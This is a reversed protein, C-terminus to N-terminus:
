RAPDYSKKDHADKRSIMDVHGDCFAANGRRDANLPPYYTPGGVVNDPNVRKRDHRIALLNIHDTKTLDGRGDDLTREDEEFYMIKEASNRVQTLRAARQCGDMAWTDDWNPPSAILFNISYSYQYGANRVRSQYDDSPCRFLDPNLTTGIYPAIASEELKRGSQWAIWDGSDGRTSDAPMFGRNANIYMITSQAIQRLNSACKVSNAQERARSLAPLLISILLAIIGIVVLLEVLTFGDRRGCPASCSVRAM